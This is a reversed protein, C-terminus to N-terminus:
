HRTALAKEFEVAEKVIPTPLEYWYAVADYDEDEALWAEYLAATPVGEPVAPQGYAVRPDINIKPFQDPRPKWSKVLRTSSDFRLGPILSRKIAEYIVYNDTLLSLLQRDEQEEASTKLIKEVFVDTKDAVLVVRESAFPHPLKFESRLREAARRLSNAKVGAARFHEVFRVEMLDLFSLEEKRNIPEFDRVLLPGVYRRPYGKLWGRIRQENGVAILKAAEPITYFGSALPHSKIPQAAGM